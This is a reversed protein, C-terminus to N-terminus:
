PNIGLTDKSDKAKDPKARYYFWCDNLLRIQRRDKKQFASMLQNCLWQPM